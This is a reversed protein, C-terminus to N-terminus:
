LGTTKDNEDMTWRGMEWKVIESGKKRMPNEAYDRVIPSL